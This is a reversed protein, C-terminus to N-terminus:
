PSQNEDYCHELVHVIHNIVPCFLHYLGVVNALFTTERPYIIYTCQRQRFKGFSFLGDGYLLLQRPKLNRYTVSRMSGVKNWETDVGKLFYAYQIREPSSYNIGLYEITFVSEDYNLEIRDTSNINKVLPSKPNQESRITVHQNFLLFDPLSM